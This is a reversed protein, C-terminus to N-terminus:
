GASRRLFRHILFHHQGKILMEETTVDYSGASFASKCQTRWTKALNESSDFLLVEGALIRFLTRPAIEPFNARRSFTEKEATDNSYIWRIVLPVGGAGESIATQMPEDGLLLVEGDACSITQLYENTQCAREYDTMMSDSFSGSKGSTGQWHQAIATEALVLPGGTSNVWEWRTDVM